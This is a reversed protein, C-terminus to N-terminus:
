CEHRAQSKRHARRGNWQRDQLLTALIRCRLTPGNNRDVNKLAEHDNRHERHNRQKSADCVIPMSDIGQLTDFHNRGNAANVNKASTHERPRKRERRSPESRTAEDHNGEATNEERSPPHLRDPDRHCQARKHGANEQRGGLEGILDLSRHAIGLPEQEGSKEDGDAHRDIESLYDVELPFQEQVKWAKSAIL